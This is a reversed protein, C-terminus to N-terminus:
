TRREWGGVWHARGEGVAETVVEAKPHAVDVIEMKRVRGEGGPAEYDVPVYKVKRDGVLELLHDAYKHVTDRQRLVPANFAEAMEIPNLSVKRGLRWWGYFAPIIMAVGIITVALSAAWFAPNAVYINVARSQHVTSSVYPQFKFVVFV